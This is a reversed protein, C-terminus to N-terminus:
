VAMGVRSNVSTVLNGTVLFIFSGFETVFQMTYRQTSNGSCSGNGQGNNGGGNKINSCLDRSSIIILQHIRIFKTM